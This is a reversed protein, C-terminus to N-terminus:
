QSEEDVSICIHMTICICIFIYVMQHDHVAFVNDYLTSGLPDMCTDAQMAIRICGHMIIHMPTHLSHIYVYM